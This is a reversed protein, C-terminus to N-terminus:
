FNIHNQEKYEMANDTRLVKITCSFQTKVMHSFTSYLEPLESRNCILFPWTFRSFDDVFIVFYRSVGYTTVPAPGWIDSHVLNFPEM